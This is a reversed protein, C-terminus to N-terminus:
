KVIQHACVKKMVKKSYVTKLLYCVVTKLKLIIKRENVKQLFKNILITNNNYKRWKTNKNLKYKM